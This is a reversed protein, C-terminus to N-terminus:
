RSRARIASRPFANSATPEAAPFDIEREAAAANNMTIARASFGARSLRCAEIRIADDGGFDFVFLQRQRRDIM